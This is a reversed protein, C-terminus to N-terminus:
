EENIFKWDAIALRKQTYARAVVQLKLKTGFRYIVKVFPEEPNKRLWEFTEPTDLLDEVFTRIEETNIDWSKEEETEYFWASKIHKSLASMMASTFTTFTPTLNFENMEENTEECLANMSIVIEMVIKRETTM